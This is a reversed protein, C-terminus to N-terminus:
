EFSQVTGKLMNFCKKSLNLVRTAYVRSPEWLTYAHCIRSRQNEVPHGSLFDLRQQFKFAKHQVWPHTSFVISLKCTLSFKLRLLSFPILCWLYFSCLSILLIAFNPQSINYLKPFIIAKCLKCIKYINTNRASITVMKPEFITVIEAHLVFMYLIHLSRLAINEM